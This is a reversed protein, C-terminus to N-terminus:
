SSREASPKSRMRYGKPTYELRGDSAFRRWADYAQVGRFLCLARAAHSCPLLTKFSRPGGLEPLAEVDRLLAIVARRITERGPRVSAPAMAIWELNHGTVTIRDLCPDGYVYDVKTVAPWNLDWGGTSRQSDELVRSLDALWRHARDRASPSLIPYIDGVRLMVALAYAVHCGGCPGKGHETRVLVESLDEFTYQNDYQNRWSTTGPPLYLALATAIFEQELNPSYRMLADHLLDRVTGTKGSSTTVLASAPVGSEALVMLLQGYHGEGRYGSSDVTGNRVVFIGFPSDLLYDGDGPATNKKCLSDSLLTKVILDGNRDQGVMDRSFSSGAGWLRLEHLLSPVTPPHWMPMASCLADCLQRETVCERLDATPKVNLPDERCAILQPVTEGRAARRAPVDAPALHGGDRSCGQVATLLLPLLLAVGSFRGLLPMAVRVLRPSAPIRGVMSGEAHVRKIQGAAHRRKKNAVVKVVAAEGWIM